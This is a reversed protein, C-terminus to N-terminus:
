TSGSWPSGVGAIEALDQTGGDLYDLRVNPAPQGIEARQETDTVLPAQASEDLMVQLDVPDEDLMEIVIRAATFAALLALATIVFLGVPGVPLRRRRAPPADPVEPAPETSQDLDSM